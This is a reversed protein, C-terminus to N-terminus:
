PYYGYGSPKGHAFWIHQNGTSGHDMLVAFQGWICYGGETSPLGNDKCGEDWVFKYHWTDGSGGKTKGNWQNNLWADYPPDSWVEANGRDWEANWKMILKDNASAGLYDTCWADDGVKDMCWSWGTGNFIRATRNYGAEDFGKAAFATTISLLLLSIVLISISIRKTM